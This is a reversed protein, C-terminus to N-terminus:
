SFAPHSREDARVLALVEDTAREVASAGFDSLPDGLSLDLAPVEVLFAPPSPWGLDAVLGLLTGPTSHHTDGAAPQPSVQRVTVREVAISADVFVVRDARAIPEALEPVLQVVSRVAVGPLARREIADAVLRGAADDGHLDSGLGVVLVDPM